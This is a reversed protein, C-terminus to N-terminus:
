TPGYSGSHQLGAAPGFERYYEATAAVDPVGITIQTLGHLSM